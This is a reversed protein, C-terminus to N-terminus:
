HTHSQEVIEMPVFNNGQLAFRKTGNPMMQLSGGLWNYTDIKLSKVKNNERQLTLLNIGRLTDEPRRNAGEAFSPAGSVILRSQDIAVDEVRTEHVHGHLFIHTKGLGLFFRKFDSLNDVAGDNQAVAVPSHHGLGVVVAHDTESFKHLHEGLQNLSKLDIHPKPLTSSSPQSTNVGYFIVGLHRFKSEIWGFQQSEPNDDLLPCNAIRSLYNRFPIFAYNVLDSQQETDTIEPNLINNVINPEIRSAIALRINIDHNGPVYLLKRSPLEGMNLRKFFYEIWKEAMKYQEPSGYETVDGSFAIFAPSKDNWHNLIVRACNQADNIMRQEFDQEDEQQQRKAHVDSIHVIRLEENQDLNHNIDLKKSDALMRIISEIPYGIDGRRAYGNTEDGEIDRWHLFTRCNPKEFARRVEGINDSGWRVSVVAMPTENDIIDAVDRITIPWQINLIADSIVSSYGGQQWKASLAARTGETLYDFHVAFGHNRIKEALHDYAEKRDQWEDDIILINYTM